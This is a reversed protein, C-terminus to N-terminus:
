MKKDKELSLLLLEETIRWSLPFFLAKTPFMLFVSEPHSKPALLEALNSAINLGLGVGTPNIEQRGEFEIRTYNTFLRNQNEQTIGIGSDEVVIKVWSTHEIPVAKLKVMGEKTFKIANTLLNLVIQSLRLHDANFNEPLASDLEVKFDINKKKAPIEVLQGTNKLTEHLNEPQFVLRLKKERIQLMDIIDNILHLL